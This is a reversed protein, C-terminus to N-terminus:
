KGFQVAFGFNLYTINNKFWSHDIGDDYGDPNMLRADPNVVWDATLVDMRFMGSFKRSIRFEYGLAFSLGCYGRQFLHGQRKGRTYTREQYDMYGIGFSLFAGQNGNSFLYRYTISPRIFHLHMKDPLSAMRLYDYQIGMAFNPLFYYRGELMLDYGPSDGNKQFFDNRNGEVYPLSIGGGLVISYNQPLYDQARLGTAAYSMFVTFLVFLKKMMIVRKKM